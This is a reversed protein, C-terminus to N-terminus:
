CTHVITFSRCSCLIKMIIMIFLNWIKYFQAELKKKKKKKKQKHGLERLRNWKYIEQELMKYIHIHITTFFNLERNQDNYRGTKINYFSIIIDHIYIYNYSRVAITVHLRTHKQKTTNKIYLLTFNKNYYIWICLSINPLVM